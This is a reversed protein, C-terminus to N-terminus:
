ANKVTDLIWVVRVGSLSIRSTDGLSGASDQAIEPSAPDAHVLVLFLARCTRVLRAEGRFSHPGKTSEVLARQNSKRSVIAQARARTDDIGVAM